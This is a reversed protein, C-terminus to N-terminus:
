LGGTQGEEYDVMASGAGDLPNYIDAAECIGVCDIPAGGCIGNHARATRSLGSCTSLGLAYRAKRVTPGRKGRSRRCEPTERAQGLNDGIRREIKRRPAQKSVRGAPDRDTGRRHIVM